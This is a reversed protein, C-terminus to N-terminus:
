VLYVCLNTVQVRFTLGSNSQLTESSLGSGVLSNTTTLVQLTSEGDEFFGERYSLLCQILYSTRLSM